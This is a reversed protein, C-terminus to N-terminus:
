RKMAALIALGGLIGLPILLLGFGGPAIGQFWAVISHLLGIAAGIPDL